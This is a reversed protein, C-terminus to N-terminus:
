PAQEAAALSALLAYDEAYTDRILAETAPACAVPIPESRREHFLGPTQPTGTTADIWRFVRDLGDELRFLRHRPDIFAAQPRIHNSLTWPDRAYVALIRTAWGDFDLYEAKGDVRALYTPRGAVRNRALRALGLPRLKPRLPEARMRFESVLRAKPDRLVAFGADYAGPPVIEAWAERHLHQVPVRAWGKGQGHLALTAGKARLYAEVSTGGTKPVHVFFLTTAGIRALPM